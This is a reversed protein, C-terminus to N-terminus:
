SHNTPAIPCNSTLERFMFLFLKPVIAMQNQTNRWYGNQRKRDNKKQNAKVRKNNMLGESYWNEDTTISTCKPRTQAKLLWFSQVLTLTYFFHSVINSRIRHVICLNTRMLTRMWPWFGVSLLRRLMDIHSFPLIFFVMNYHFKIVCFFITCEM